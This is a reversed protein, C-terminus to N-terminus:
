VEGIEGQKSYLALQNKGKSKALYMAEDALKLLTQADKAMGPYISIGLSAGIVIDHGKLNFPEKFEALIKEGVRMFDEESRAGELLVVFEDGGLRSITDEERLTAVLRLAVGQLLMDGAEHGCSDNIAKFGDLDMFIIGLKTRGRRAKAIAHSIRDSFLSRNPLGTLPDHNARYSIEDEQNKRETIDHFVAVYLAQGGEEGPIKSISMWQSYVEGSKKRNWVEGKWQGEALIKEWMERYFEQGHRDSKFIRPTFGIVEDASYGTIWTFAPNVSLIKASSDTIMVGDLTSEFVKAALRLQTEAAKIGTIDRGYINVVRHELIPVFSLTYQRGSAMAEIEIHNGSEIARQIVENVYAPVFGGIDVGWKALLPRAGTNAYTLAGEATMKMVPHPNLDPFKAMKLIEEEAQKVASIDHGYINIYGADPFPKFTMAYTKGAVEVEMDLTRDAKFARAAKKRLEGEAVEGREAGWHQLLPSSAENAFLVLGEPGMRMVPHPNREAFSAISAIKAEADRRETADRAVGLLYGDPLLKASIDAYVLSGDKKKLRREASLVKGSMLEDFRVPKAKLDDPHVIDTIKLKQLEEISYGLLNLGAPNAELYRGQSDTVFIGEAAQELVVKSRGEIKALLEEARKRELIAALFDAVGRIAAVTAPPVNRSRQDGLSVVGLVHGRAKIPVCVFARTKLKRLEPSSYEARDLANTEVIERGTSAVIGSLSQNLPVRIPPEALGDNSGMFVMEGNQQDYLEIATNPFGFLESMIRPAQEYISEINKVGIFVRAISNIADLAMEANFRTTVDRCVGRYGSIAGTADTIPWGSVELVREEGDGAKLRARINTFRTNSLLSELIDTQDIEGTRFFDVMFRGLASEPTVGLINEVYSNTYTFRLATDVEWIWEGASEAVDSLRKESDRLSKEAARKGAMLRRKEEEASIATLIEDVFRGNRDRLVFNTSLTNLAATAVDNDADGIIIKLPAFPKQFSLRYLLSSLERDAFAQWDVIVADYDGSKIRSAGEIDTAATDILFGKLAFKEELFSRRVAEQDVYLVRTVNVVGVIRGGNGGPSM